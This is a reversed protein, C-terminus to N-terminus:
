RAMALFYGPGCGIDLIRLGPNSHLGLEAARLANLLVWYRPETYKAAGAPDKTLVPAVQDRLNVIEASNTKRQVATIAQTLATSRHQRLKGHLKVEDIWRM